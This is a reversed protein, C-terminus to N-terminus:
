PYALGDVDVELHSPKANLYLRHLVIIDGLIMEPMMWRLVQSGLPVGPFGGGVEIFQRVKDPAGSTM